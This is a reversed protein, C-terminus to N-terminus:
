EVVTEVQTGTTEKDKTLRVPNTLHGMVWLDSKRASCACTSM